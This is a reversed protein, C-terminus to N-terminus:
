FDSPRVRYKDSILLAVVFCMIVLGRLNWINPKLWYYLVFCVLLFICFPLVHPRRNAPTLWGSEQEGTQDDM